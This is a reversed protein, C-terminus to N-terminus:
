PLVRWEAPVSEPFPVRKEGVVHPVPNRALLVNAAAFSIEKVDCLSQFEEATMIHDNTM